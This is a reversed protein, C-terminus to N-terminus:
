ELQFQILHHQSRSTAYLYLNAKQANKFIFDMKPHLASKDFRLKIKITFLNM